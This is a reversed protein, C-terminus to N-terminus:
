TTSSSTGTDGLPGAKRLEDITLPTAEAPVQQQFTQPDLTPNIEVESLRFVIDATSGGSGARLNVVAPRGNQVGSYFVSLSERTAGIIQWADGARRLYTTSQGTTVAVSGGAFARGDTPTEGATFGCGSVITRLVDPTLPVGALAEVIEAASAGTLVRDDRPLVLVARDQTSTLVFVPRGFPARGELRMQSPAAFGADVRGRLKTRGANGSLAISATLTEIKACSASADAYASAFDPFSTSAGTPFAPAPARGCAAALVLLLLLLARSAVASARSAPVM